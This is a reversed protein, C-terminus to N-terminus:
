EALGGCSLLGCLSLPAVDDPLRFALITASRDGTSFSAEEAAAATTADEEDDVEVAEEEDEVTEEEDELFSM